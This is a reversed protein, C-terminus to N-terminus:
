LTAFAQSAIRKRSALPSDPRATLTLTTARNVVIERVPALAAFRQEIGAKGAQAREPSRYECVSIALGDATQGGVCYDAGAVVGVYQRPGEALALGARELAALADEAKITGTPRNAAEHQLRGAISKLSAASAPDTEAMRDLTDVAAAHAQAVPPPPSAPAARQEPASSRSCATILATATLALALSTSRNM